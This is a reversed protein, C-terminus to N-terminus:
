EEDSDEEAQWTEECDSCIGLATMSEDACEECFTRGCESCSILNLSPFEKGCVSCSPMGDFSGKEGKM